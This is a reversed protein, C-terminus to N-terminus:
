RRRVLTLITRVSTTSDNAWPATSTLWLTDARLRFHRTDRAGLMAPNKDQEHTFTITSDRVEVTGSVAVLLDYRAAKQESSFPVVASRNGSADPAVFVESFHRGSIVAFGDLVPGVLTTDPRVVRTAVHAWAGDLRSTHQAAADPALLVACLSAAGFVFARM